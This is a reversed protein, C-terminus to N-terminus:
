RRAPRTGFGSRNEGEALSAANKAAALRECARVRRRHFTREQWGKERCWEAISAEADGGAARIRAYTTLALFEDKDTLVTHAFALIDFSASPQELDTSRLANGPRTAVASERLLRMPIIVWREIDKATWAPLPDAPEPPEAM